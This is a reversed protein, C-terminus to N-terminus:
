LRGARIHNPDTHAPAPLGHDASTADAYCSHNVRQSLSIAHGMVEVVEPDVPISANFDLKITKM